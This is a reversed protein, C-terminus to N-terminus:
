GTFGQPRFNAKKWDCRGRQLNVLALKLDWLLLRSCRTHKKHKDNKHLWFLHIHLLLGQCWSLTMNSLERDGLEPM